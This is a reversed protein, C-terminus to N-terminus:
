SMIIPPYDGLAALIGILTNSDEHGYTAVICGVTFPYEALLVPMDEREMMEKVEKVCLDCEQDETPLGHIGCVYSSM